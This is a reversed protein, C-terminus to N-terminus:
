RWGIDRGFALGAAAALLAAPPTLLLARSERPEPESDAPQSRLLTDTTPGLGLFIRGAARIACAAPLLTALALLPRLWGASEGILAKGAFPGFPPLGALVLCCTAYLAGTARHRRARGRGQLHLEDSAGLRTPVA